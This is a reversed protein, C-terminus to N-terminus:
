NVSLMQSTVGKETKISVQYMGKARVVEAPIDFKNEGIRVTVKKELVSRGLADTVTLTASASVQSKITAQAAGQTPNPSLQFSTIGLAAAESTSSLTTVEVYGPKNLAPNWVNELASNYAEAGGSTPPFGESGPVILTNSGLGGIVKFCVEYLVAGNDRNRPLGDPDAWGVLLLGPTSAGFDSPMWGPLNLNQVREFTLVQPNWTLSYQFSIIDSFGQARVPLCVIQNTAVDASDVLVGFGQANLSCSFLSFLVGFVPASFRFNM